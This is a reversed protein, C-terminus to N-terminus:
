TPAPTASAMTHLQLGVAAFAALEIGLLVLMWPAPWGDLAIGVLRGLAGAGVVMVFLRAFRRERLVERRLVLFLVGVGLEVGRLFRYQNLLDAQNARPMADVEVHFFLPMEWAAAALGVAGFVAAAGAWVYFLFAAAKM